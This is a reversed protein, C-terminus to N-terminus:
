QSLGLAKCRRKKEALVGCRNWDVGYTVISIAYGVAMLVGSTVALANWTEGRNRIHNRDELTGTGDAYMANLDDKAVRGAAAFGIVGIAGLSGVAIGSWFLPPTIERARRDNGTELRVDREITTLSRVVDFKQMEPRDLDVAVMRPQEILGACGGTALTAATLLALCTTSRPTPDPRSRDLM